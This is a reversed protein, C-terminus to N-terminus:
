KIIIRPCECNFGRDRPWWWVAEIISGGDEVLIRCTSNCSFFFCSASFRFLASSSRWFAALALSSNKVFDDKNSSGVLIEELSFSTYLYCDISVSRSLFSQVFTTHAPCTNIRGRTFCICKKEPGQSKTHWNISIELWISGFPSTEFTSFLIKYLITIM